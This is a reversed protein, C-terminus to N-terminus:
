KRNRLLFNSAEQDLDSETLIRNTELLWRDIEDKDFFLKGGGPKSYPISYSSTLKYLYSPKFGTYEVVENFTLSKKQSLLLKEIKTLRDNICEYHNM